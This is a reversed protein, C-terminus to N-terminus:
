LDGTDEQTIFGNAVLLDQWGDNNLDVFKSGWAWRGLVVGAPVSVDRFSGDGHNEFLSNGRAHRQFSVRTSEAANQQFRQQFAIRNGASSFMNSVYLDMFGDNNYDGWCVSMGPSIDEVGAQAAVDRFHGGDNQYLNNRGFDNAVYLDLDGDNDYDEWAAAYSFRRNNEDLGVEKTVYRFRWPAEAPTADNRLLVNRGGNNADHYPVPRAFLLHRNVGKRRNYCCVYIDLDGDTDYDAAALSYPLAAPLIKAARPVFQGRGNNAMMVIGDSLGIILDQDADNDMDVFLAGHTSDLWDVGASASTEQCTGDANQVYLRNPLGGPQCIYLDELGDGNVDAIALGQWGGIDIGMRMEISGLWHDIGPLLQQQFTNDADALIAETCDAFLQGAAARRGIVEEYETPELAVLLPPGTPETLQWQCRWVSNIQFTGQLCAGWIQVYANTQGENGNQSVRFVKFKTHVDHPKSVFSLLKNLADRFDDAGIKSGSDLYDGRRVVIAEDRYVEQVQAPRLSRGTFNRSVLDAITGTPETDSGTLHKALSDLQALARASFLETQWGDASADDVPPREVTGPVSESKKYTVVPHPSAVEVSTPAVKSEGHCGLLACLVSAVAIRRCGRCATSRSLLM